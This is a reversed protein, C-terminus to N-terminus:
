FCARRTQLRQYFRRGTGPDEVTVQWSVKGCLKRPAEFAKSFVNTAKAGIGNRGGTFRVGTDDFNEGSM